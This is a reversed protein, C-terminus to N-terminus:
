TQDVLINIFDTKELLETSASHINRISQDFWGM